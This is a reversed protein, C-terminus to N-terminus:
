HCEKFKPREKEDVAAPHWIANLCNKRCFPFCCFDLRLGFLCLNGLSRQESAVNNQRRRLDQKKGIKRKQIRLNQLKKGM